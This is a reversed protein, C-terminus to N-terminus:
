SGSRFLFPFTIQAEGGKPRPFKWRKIKGSICDAVKPDGMTSSRVRVNKVTGNAAVTWDMAIRGSLTPKSMLANEYCAQIAHINANIVRLVDAQSLSGGIKAGSSMKTVKGRVKGSRKTPGVSGVKSGKGAVEDGNLTSIIGGGGSRAINVGNGPLSAIAGAISFGSSGGSPSRVADINSIMDKLKNSEGPKGSGRSLVNLLSNVSSSTNPQSSKVRRKITKQSVKPAREAIAAADEKPLDEVAQEEVPTPEDLKELKVEAFVEEEKESIDGIRSVDIYRLGYAVAGHLALALVAVVLMAGASVTFFPTKLPAVPPRYVEIKYTGGLGTLVASDGDKLELQMPETREVITRPEGGVTLDGVVTPGAKLFLKNDRGTKDNKGAQIFCSLENDFTNYPTDPTVGFSQAVSGNVVRVVLAVAYPETPGETARRRESLLMQTLDFADDFNEDDDGFFFDPDLAEFSEIRPKELSPGPSSDKVEVIDDTTKPEPAAVPQPKEIDEVEIPIDTTPSVTRVPTVAVASKPAAAPVPARSARKAAHMQSVRAPPPVSAMSEVLEVQLTLKGIRIVDTPSPVAFDVPEDNMYVLAGSEPVLTLEGEDIYITAHKPQVNPDGAARISSGEAAGITFVDSRVKYSRIVRGARLLKVKIVGKGSEDTQTM